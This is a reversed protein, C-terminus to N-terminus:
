ELVRVTGTLGHLLEAADVLLKERDTLFETEREFEGLYGHM